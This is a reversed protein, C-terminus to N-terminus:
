LEYTFTVDIDICPTSRTPNDNLNIDYFLNGSKVGRARWGIRPSFIIPEVGRCDFQAITKFTGSDEFNYHAFSKM